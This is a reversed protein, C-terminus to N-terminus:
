AHQRGEGLNTFSNLSSYNKTRRFRKIPPARNVSGLGRTDLKSKALSSAACLRDAGVACAAHHCPDSPPCFRKTLLQAAGSQGGFALLALDLEAARCSKRVSYAQLFRVCQRLARDGTERGVIGIRHALRMIILDPKVSDYDLDLLLQLLSTTRSFFPMERCKLDRRLQDFRLWFQDIDTQSRIRRPIQFGQLYRVFSGNERTIVNLTKACRVIQRIKGKFRFHGLHSWFSKIIVNPNCQALAVPNFDAFAERFIPTKILAGIQASRAGQSYAIAVCFHRMIKQDSPIPRPTCQTRRDMEQHWGSTASTHCQQRVLDLARDSQDETAM